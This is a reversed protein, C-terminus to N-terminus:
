DILVAAGGAVDVPDELPGLGAVQWHLLWGREFACGAPVTGRIPTMTVAVARLRGVEDCGQALPQALKPVHLAPIHHELWPRRFPPVGAEGTQDGLENLQCDVDKHGARVWHDRSDLL